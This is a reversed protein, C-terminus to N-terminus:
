FKSPSNSPCLSLSMTHLCVKLEVEFNIHNASFSFIYLYLKGDCISAYHLFETQFETSM